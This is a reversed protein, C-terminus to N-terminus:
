YIFKRVNGTFLSGHEWFGLRGTSNTFFKDYNMNSYFTFRLNENCLGGAPYLSTGGDIHLLSTEEVEGADEAAVQGSSPVDEPVVVGEEEVGGGPAPDVDDTVLNQLFEILM